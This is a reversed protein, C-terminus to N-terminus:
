LRFSFSIVQHSEWGFDERLAKDIVRIAMTIFAWCRNCIAAGSCCTRIEDYDTMDIDFVLEKSIPRFAGQKRVTKRDRGTHRAIASVSWGRARLASIEVDDEQTLM